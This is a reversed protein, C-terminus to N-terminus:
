AMVNCALDFWGGMDHLIPDFLRDIINVKIDVKSSFSHHMGRGPHLLGSVLAELQPDSSWSPIGQWTTVNFAERTLEVIFAFFTCSSIRCLHAGM